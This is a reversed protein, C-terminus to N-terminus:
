HALADFLLRFGEDSSHARPPSGSVNFYSRSRMARPSAIPVLQPLQAILGLLRWNM